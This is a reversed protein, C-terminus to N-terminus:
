APFSPPPLRRRPRHPRRSRAGSRQGCATFGWVLCAFLGIVLLLVALYSITTVVGSVGGKAERLLNEKDLIFERNITPSAPIEPGSDRHRAAHLDAFGM